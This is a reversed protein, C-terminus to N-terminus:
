TNAGVDLATRSSDPNPVVAVLAIDVLLNGSLLPALSTWIVCYKGVVGDVLSRQLELRHAGVGAHTPSSPVRRVESM